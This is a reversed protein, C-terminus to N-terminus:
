RILENIEHVSIKIQTHYSENPQVFVLEQKRNMEDTQAMWPEVCMFPSGQETWIVMYRFIPDYEITVRRNIEPLPFSVRPERTDLLVVSEKLQEFDFSGAYEKISMDNYDFYRTADTQIDISKCSTAFYPHFGSYMPMPRNSQNRYDQHIILADEQLEYRFILEFDFPFSRKTEDNSKLGLTISLEDSEHIELIQWPHNRAVGHNKMQYVQGDLEYEGNELQGCIPFLIPIGGRINAQPNHLTEQNMFLLEEGLLKLSTVIGGREPVIQLASNVRHNVLEYISFNGDQHVTTQKM